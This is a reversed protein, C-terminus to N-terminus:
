PQYKHQLNPKLLLGSKEDHQPPTQNQPATTPTPVLPQPQNTSDLAVPPINAATPSPSFLSTQIPLMQPAVATLLPTESVIPSPPCSSTQAPSQHPQNNTEVLVPPANPAATSPPPLSAQISSMQPLDLPVVALPQPHPIPSMQPLDLPVVALPQPHPVPLSSVPKPPCNPNIM